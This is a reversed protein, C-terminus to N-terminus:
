PREKAALEAKLVAVQAKDTRRLLWADFKATLADRYHSLVGLIVPLAVLLADTVKALMANNLVAGAEGSAGAALMAWRIVKAALRLAPSDHDSLLWKVAVPLYQNVARSIVAKEGVTLVVTPTTPQTNTDTDSM